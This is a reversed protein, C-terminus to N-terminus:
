YNLSLGAGFLSFGQFSQWYLLGGFSRSFQWGALLMALVTGDVSSVHGAFGWDGFRFQLTTGFVLTLEDANDVSSDEPDLTFFAGGGELSLAMRRWRVVQQRVVGRALFAFDDGDVLLNGMLAFDDFLVLEGYGNDTYGGALVKYDLFGLRDREFYPAVAGSPDGGAELSIVKLVLLNGRLILRLESTGDEQILIEDVEGPSGGLDTELGDGVEFNDHTELRGAVLSASRQEHQFDFRSRRSFLMVTLRLRGAAKDRPRFQMVLATQPDSSEVRLRDASPVRWRQARMEVEANPQLTQEPRESLGQFISRSIMLERGAANWPLLACLACVALALRARGAPRRLRFTARVAKGPPDVAHRRPPAAHPTAAHPM